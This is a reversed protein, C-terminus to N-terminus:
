RRGLWRISSSLKVGHERQVRELASRHLLELDRASGEGLNVLMEPATSPITVRRLRVDPLAAGALLTRLSGRAPPEYWSSALPRRRSRSVEPKGQPLDLLAELVVAKGAQGVLDEWHGEVERGRKLYRVRSVIGEWGGDLAMSAGLSGPVHSWPELGRLGWGTAREILAPMPTGAGVWLGRDERVMESFGTGLRIMAGAIGADRVISRTGAGLLTWSWNEARCLELAEPLADRRHVVIWADCPGGARWATHRSLPEDRRVVVGDIDSM